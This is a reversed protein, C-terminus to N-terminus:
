ARCHRNCFFDPCSGRAWQVSEWRDFRQNISRRCRYYRRHPSFLKWHYLVMKSRSFILIQTACCSCMELEGFIDSLRGVLLFSVSLGLTNSLAVWTINKSPGIDKDILLLSNAPLSWGV